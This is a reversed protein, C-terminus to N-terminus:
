RLHLCHTESSGSPMEGRWLMWLQPHDLLSSEVCDRKRPGSFLVVQVLGMVFILQREKLM